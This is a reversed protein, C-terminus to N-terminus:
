GTQESVPEEPENDVLRSIQEELQRRFEVVEIQKGRDHERQQKIGNIMMEVGQVMKFYGTFTKFRQETTAGETTLNEDLKQMEQGLRQQLDLLSREFMEVLGSRPVCISQESM